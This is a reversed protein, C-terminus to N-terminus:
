SNPSERSATASSTRCCSAPCGACGTSSTASCRARTGPSTSTTATTARWTCRRAAWTAARRRAGAHTARRPQVSRRPRGDAQPGERERARHAVAAEHAYLTFPKEVYVHSGRELCFTPSTSTARRRRPSTCSTRGRRARSARRPRQLRQKVPFRESLQRAMLPERDCVGVIECGEIRQIQSAHADAIKGCGVIAVKLM